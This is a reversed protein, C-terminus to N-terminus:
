GDAIARRAEPREHLADRLASALREFRAGLRADVAGLDTHLTLDGRALEADDLVEVAAEGLGASALCHRLAAADIPHAGLVARRAGRAEALVGRAIAAIHSADLDLAAGLLREAMAVAVSVIRDGDRELRGQEELRIAIWQAAGRATAETRAAEVAAAAETEAAARARAVADAAEREARELIRGAEAQAAAV